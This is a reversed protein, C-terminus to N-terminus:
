WDGVVLYPAVDCTGGPAGSRCRSRAPIRVSSTAETRVLRTDNDGHTSFFGSDVCDGM